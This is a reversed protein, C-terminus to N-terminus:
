AAGAKRTVLATALGAVALVAVREWGPDPVVAIWRAAALVIAAHVALLWPGASIGTGLGPLWRRVGLWPALGVCLAGGVAAWPRGTAGSVVAWAFGVGFGVSMSRGVRGRRTAVAVAFGALVGLVIVSPGTEPVGLFVGALSIAAGLEAWPTNRPALLQSAGGIGCAVVALAVVVYGDIEGIGDRQSLLAAAWATAVAFATGSWTRVGRASWLFAVALATALGGALLRLNEATLIGLLDDLPKM